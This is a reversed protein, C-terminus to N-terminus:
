YPNPVVRHGLVILPHIGLMAFATGGDFRRMDYQCLVTMPHTVLLDNIQAEYAVLHQECGPAGASAWTMEAAVRAGATGAAIAGDWYARLCALMAGPVFEGDPTYTDTAAAFRIADAIGDKLLGIRHLKRRAHEDFPDALYHVIQGSALGDRVYDPLVDAREEDDYYLYCIHAARHHPPVGKLEVGAGSDLPM